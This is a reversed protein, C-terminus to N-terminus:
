FGLVKRDKPSADAQAMVVTAAAATTESTRAGEVAIRKMLPAGFTAIAAV